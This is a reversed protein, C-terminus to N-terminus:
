YGAVANTVADNSGDLNFAQGVKGATFGAGNILTGNRNSIVDSANGEGPWWGVIGSPPPLCNTQSRVSTALGCAGLILMWLVVQEFQINKVTNM